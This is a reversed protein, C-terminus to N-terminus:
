EAEERWNDPFDWGSGGCEDCTVESMIFGSNLVPVMPCFHGCAYLIIGALKKAM